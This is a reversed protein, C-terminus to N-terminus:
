INYKELFEHASYKTNRIKDDGLVVKREKGVGVIAVISSRKKRYHPLLTDQLHVNEKQM